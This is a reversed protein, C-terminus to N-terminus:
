GWYSDWLVRKESDVILATGDEYLELSAGRIASGREDWPIFRRLSGRPAPSQGLTCFRGRGVRWRGNKVSLETQPEEESMIVRQFFAELVCILGGNAVGGFSGTARHAWLPEQTRDPKHGPSILIDGIETVELSFPSKYARALFM